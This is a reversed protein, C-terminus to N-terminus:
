STVCATNLILESRAIRLTMRGINNRTLIGQFVLTGNINMKEIPRTTTRGGEAGDGMQGLDEFPQFQCLDYSLCYAGTCGFVEGEEVDPVVAILEPVEAFRGDAHPGGVERVDPTEGSM